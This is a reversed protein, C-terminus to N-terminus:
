DDTFDQTMRKFVNECLIHTIDRRSVLRFVVLELDYGCRGPTMSYVWLPDCNAVQKTAIEQNTSDGAETLMASGINDVHSYLTSTM